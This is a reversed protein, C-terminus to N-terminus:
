EVSLPEADEKRIIEMVNVRMQPGRTKALMDKRLYSVVFQKQIERKFDSYGYNCKSCWAKMVQEEIYYRVQGEINADHEIRGKVESRTITLDTSEGTGFSTEMRQTDRNYRVVVFNGYYQRTFSNLIDEASKRNVHVIQQADKIMQIYVGAIQKIPLDIVNAYKSGLLIGGTLAASCGAVWFREDGKSSTVRKLDRYVTGYLDRAVEPNRVLWQVFRHGAHGYNDRMLSLIDEEDPTWELKKDMKLELFRRLHGESMQKRVASFFDTVHTNSALLMLSRWVTTNVREENTASKMRDKGKGGTMDMVFASIWDFNKNAETIEDIILPLSNLVGVRHEQTVASTKSNLIYTEEGWVSAALSLAVSKGTGTESSGIHFTLAKFKGFHMLPAGFSVLVMALIDYHKHAQLLGVVKKWNELTGSTSTNQVANRLKPMPVPKEGHKDFIKGNLVFSGDKQWGFSEPIKIAKRSASVQETAGRVYDFLYRDNGAGYSALINQQALAKVTEDKSVVARQPLLVELPGETRMAMLQVIHGDEGGDLLDVVFLDYPLIQKYETVDDGAANQTVVTRYIGGNKGYAFGYPPSPRTITKPEALPETAPIEVEKPANDTQIEHGLALPNTIRGWHPCSPCVGPNEADLKTCPYPGKIERLKQQMRAEPYPHQRSLFRSAKEGDACVKAQSLMGRWLPEMGDESAHTLYYDLQACGKGAATKDLIAKFFTVRNELVKVLSPGAPALREGPVNFLPSNEKHPDELTSMVATELAEFAYAGATTKVVVPKPYKWNTTGPVRLVRSADASVTMDIGFGHQKCLRKFNEALPKWTAVPVEETLPWYVHVGGGSDVTWPVPMGSAALFADLAEVAARKTPYAKGEGCDIDAFLARMFAANDSLRSGAKHFSALAFYTNLKAEDFRGIHPRLEELTGYVHEKKKTSLEAICYVGSTPLVAALFDLPEM